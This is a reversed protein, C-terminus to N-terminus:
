AAAASGFGNTAVAAAAAIAGTAVGESSADTAAGSALTEAAGGGDVCPPTAPIAICYRPTLYTQPPPLGLPKSQEPRTEYANAWIPTETGCEVYASYAIPEATDRSWSCGPSRTKKSPSPWM